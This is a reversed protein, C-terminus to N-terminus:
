VFLMLYKLHCDIMHLRSFFLIGRSYSSYLDMLLSEVLEDSGALSALVGHSSSSLLACITGLDEKQLLSTHTLFFAFCWCIYSVNM